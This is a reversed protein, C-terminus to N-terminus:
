HTNRAAEQSESDGTVATPHFTLCPWNSRRWEVIQCLTVSRRRWGAPSLKLNRFGFFHSLPGPFPRASPLPLANNVAPCLDSPGLLLHSPAPVPGPGRVMKVNPLLFLGFPFFLAGPSTFQSKRDEGDKRRGKQSTDKKRRKKCLNARGKWFVSQM